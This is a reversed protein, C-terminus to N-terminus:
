ESSYSSRFPWPETWPKHQEFRRRMQEIRDRQVATFDAAGQALTQNLTTIAADWRGNAALAVALTEARAPTRRIGLLERALDLARRPDRSHADPSAALFRALFLRLRLDRPFRGAADDLMARAGASQGTAALMVAQGVLPWAESPSQAAALRYVALASDYRSAATYIGAILQPPAAGASTERRLADATEIAKARTTPDSAWALALGARAGPHSPELRVAEDFQRLAEDRNGAGLLAEGYAVRAQVFSPNAEVATRFEDLAQRRRGAAASEHGLRLLGASSHDLAGLSEYIPDAYRMPPPPLVGPTSRPQKAIWEQLDPRYALAGTARAFFDASRASDGAQAAIQGLRILPYPARPNLNAATELYRVADGTRKQELAFEALMCLAPLRDRSTAGTDKSLRDLASTMAAAADSPRGAARLAHALLFPWEARGRDLAAANRFCAAAPIPLRYVLYLKGLNGYAAARKEPPDSASATAAARAEAIERRPLPELTDLAVEPVREVRGNWLSRALSVIGFSVIAVLVFAAARVAIRRV